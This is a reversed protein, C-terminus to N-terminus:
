RVKRYLTEFSVWQNQLLHECLPRGTPHLLMAQLARAWRLRGAFRGRLSKRVQQRTATWSCQGRSWQALIPAALLAGSLAMSMGNGTLPPIMAAADGIRLEESGSPQWGWVLGSVGKQSGTSKVAALVREALTNLGAERMAQPLADLDGKLPLNRCFLGSVNVLGSEVRALGVYANCGLHIELDADLSLDAYHAKLGMWPSPRLVRGAAVVVGEESLPGAYRAGLELVGGLLQFREQLQQDFLHRSLGYAPEPLRAHFMRRAGDFWVTELHRPVSALTDSIGLAAIEAPGIGSLFEGCVKHRPYPVTEFVRVPLGSQRLAVGLSLGAIGGGVIRIEKLAMGQTQLRGVANHFSGLEM